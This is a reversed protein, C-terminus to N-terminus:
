MGASSSSSSSESRSSDLRTMSAISRALVSKRCFEPVAESSVESESPETESLPAESVSSVVTYFHGSFCGNQLQQIPNVLFYSGRIKSKKMSLYGSGHYYIAMIFPIMIGITIILAPAVIMYPLMRTKFPLVNLESVAASNKKQEKM